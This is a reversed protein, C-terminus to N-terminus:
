PPTPPPSVRGNTLQPPFIRIEGVGGGGGGGSSIDDMGNAGDRGAATAIAGDGGNGGNSDPAAVGGLGVSEFGSSQEGVGVADNNTTGGGGGGGGNAFVQGDLGMVLTGDLVIMGGSGGGGGGRSGSSRAGGSGSANIQGDIVIMPALLAVAGGGFGFETANGGTLLGSSRTGPCGARFAGSGVPLQPTGGPNASEGGAGGPSGLSGGAGGGAPLDSVAVPTIARCDLTSGAGAGAPLGLSSSVDLTDSISIAETAFLALPRSGQGRLTGEIAIRTGAIVCVDLDVAGMPVRYPACNQPVGTDLTMSSASGISYEETPTTLLCLQVTGGGRCVGPDIADGDELPFVLECATLLVLALVWRVLM